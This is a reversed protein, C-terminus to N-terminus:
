ASLFYIETELRRGECIGTCCLIFLPSSLFTGYFNCGAASSPLSLYSRFNFSCLTKPKLGPRNSFTDLLYILTSLVQESRSLELCAHEPIVHRSPIYIHGRPQQIYWAHEWTHETSHVQQAISHVLCFM